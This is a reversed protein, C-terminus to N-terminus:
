DPLIRAQNRTHKLHSLIRLKDRDSLVRGATNFFEQLADLVYQETDASSMCQRDMCIGHLYIRFCLYAKNCDSLLSAQPDSSLALEILSKYQRYIDQLGKASAFLSPREASYYIAVIYDELSIGQKRAALLVTKFVLRKFEQHQRQPFEILQTM